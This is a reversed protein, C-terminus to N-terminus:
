TIVYINGGNCILQVLVVKERMNDVSYGLLDDSICDLNLSEIQSEISDFCAECLCINEPHVAISSSSECITLRAMGGGVLLTIKEPSIM